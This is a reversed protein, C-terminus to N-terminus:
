DIRTNIVAAPRRALGKGVASAKIAYREREPGITSPGEEEGVIREQTEVWPPKPVAVGVIPPLVDSKRAM